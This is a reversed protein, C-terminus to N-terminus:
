FALITGHKAETSLNQFGYMSFIIACTFLAIIGSLGLFEGILYVAYGTLLILSSEKIPHHSFSEVRKFIFSLILGFLLGLFLSCFFLYGFSLL